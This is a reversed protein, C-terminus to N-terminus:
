YIYAHTHTYMYINRLIFDQSRKIFVDFFVDKKASFLIDGSLLWNLLSYM